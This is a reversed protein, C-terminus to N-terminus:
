RALIGDVLLACAGLVVMRLFDFRVAKYYPTDPEWPQERLNFRFYLAVMLAPPIAALPVALGWGAQLLDKVAPIEVVVVMGIAFWSSVRLMFRLLPLPIM